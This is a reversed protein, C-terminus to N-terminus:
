RDARCRAAAAISCFKGIKIFGLRADLAVYSFAGITAKCVVTRAGIKVYDPLVSDIVVALSDVKVGRWQKELGRNRVLNKYHSVVPNNILTKLLCTLDV